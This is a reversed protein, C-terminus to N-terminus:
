PQRIKSVESIVKEFGSSCNGNAHKLANSIATSKLDTGQKWLLAAVQVAVAEDYGDLAKVILRIDSKAKDIIAQAYHRASNKEGNQDQDVWVAGTAGVLVPHWDPSTPQYPENIPWFPMREGTGQAIAVLHVDHKPLTLVWTGTWNLPKGKQHIIKEERIMKGNAYLSVKDASVWAPGLVEIHVKVDGSGRGMDGPGYQDNVLIRTVLGCSVSVKGAILNSMLAHKDLRGPQKDDGKIYTRGQGVIFRSVDHSDSSGIPTLMTGGNLMGMWDHFLQMVDSQQSGSNIVEMANAPFKWNDVSMGASAIHRTPDFPRFGNHVDRAHNLIVVKDRGAQQIASSIEDWNKGRHDILPTEMSTDFVNFHGVHTTVEDGTVPTFLAALDSGLAAAVPALDVYKNHDTMVPFEIGEGAITVAREQISADGHGSYTESHIHPDCSVWGSTEVQKTLTLTHQALGSKGITLQLSDVSYEFGHGAYITYNGPPLKLRQRNMTYLCGPRVAVAASLSDILFTQLSRRSNLVTIRAPFQSGNDGLVTLELSSSLLDLKSQGHLTIEGVMIDDVVKQDTRVILENDGNRLTNSPVKLYTTIDQEDEILTGIAKGNIFVEWRQKVNYQRVELTQESANAQASFHLSLSMVSTEPFKTWERTEGNRLHHMKSAILTGQAHVSLTTFLALLYLTLHMTTLRHDYRYTFIGFRHTM